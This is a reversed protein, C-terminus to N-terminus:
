LRRWENLLSTQISSFSWLAENMWKYPWRPHGKHIFNKKIQKNLLPAQSARRSPFVRCFKKMWECRSRPPGQQIFFVRCVEENM